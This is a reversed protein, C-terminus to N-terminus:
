EIWSRYIHDYYLDPIGREVADPLKSKSLGREFYNLISKLKAGAFILDLVRRRASTGQRTCTETQWRSM